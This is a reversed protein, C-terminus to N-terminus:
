LKLFQQYTEETSYTFNMSNKKIRRYFEKDDIVKNIAIFIGEMSNEARIGCNEPLIEKLAPYDGAVVPTGLILSEMIVMGYSESRSTLVFLDANKIYPYPNDKLGVLTIVDNVDSKKVLEQFEAKEEGDGVITWHFKVGNKKLKKCIEPIRKHKKDTYLDIRSVTVINFTNKEYEIQEEEARKKITEVDFINHVTRLKGALEPYHRLLGDCIAESVGVILDMKLICSDWSSTDGLYDPDGHYFGIHKKANIKYKAIYYDIPDQRFGIALDYTDKIKMKSFVVTSWVGRKNLLKKIGGIIYLLPRLFFNKTQIIEPCLNWLRAIGQISILNIRNDFGIPLKKKMPLNLIDVKHGRSVLEYSLNILSSTIGGMDFDSVIFLIKM